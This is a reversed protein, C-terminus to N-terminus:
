NWLVEQESIFKNLRKHYLSTLSVRKCRKTFFPWIDDNFSKCRSVEKRACQLGDEYLENVFHKIHPNLTLGKNKVLNVLNVKRVYIELDKFVDIKLLKHYESIHKIPCAKNLYRKEIRTVDEGDTFKKRKQYICYYVLSKMSGLYTGKKNGAGAKFEETRRIKRKLVAQMITKYENRTDFWLDLRTLVADNFILDAIETNFVEVLFAKVSNLNKFHSFHLIIKYKKLQKFYYKPKRLVTITSNRHEKIYIEDYSGKKESRVIEGEKTTDQFGSVNEFTSNLIENMTFETIANPNFGVIATGM